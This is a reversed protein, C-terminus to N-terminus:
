GRWVERGSYESVVANHGDALSDSLQGLRIQQKTWMFAAMNWLVAAEHDEDENGKEIELLHRHLSELYEHLPQGKKWNEVPDGADGYKAAGRQYLAGLRERVLPPIRRILAKGEDSDRRSGTEFERRAGTDKTEFTM